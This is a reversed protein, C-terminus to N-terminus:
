VSDESFWDDYYLDDWDDMGDRERSPGDGVGGGGEARESAGKAADESVIDSPSIGLMDSVRELQGAELAAQMERAVIEDEKESGELCEVIAYNVDEQTPEADFTAAVEFDADTDPSTDVFVHWPKPYARIVMARTVGQHVGIEHAHTMAAELAADEEDGGDSGKEEAMTGGSEVSNLAAVESLEEDNNVTGDAGKPPDVGGVESGEKSIGDAVYEPMSDGTMYQVSLLRLHYVSTFKGFEAMDIPVMHHNLVVVPQTIRRDPEVYDRATRRMLKEMAIVAAADDPGPAVVVILNDREDDVPDFGLTSLSVVEPAALAMSRRYSLLGGVTPFVIKVRNRVRFSGEDDGTGTGSDLGELGAAVPLVALEIFEAFLEPDRALEADRVDVLMRHKGALIASLVSAGAADAADTVTRPAAGFISDDDRVSPLGGGGPASADSKRNPAAAAVDAAVSEDTEDIKLGAERLIDVVNSFAKAAETLDEVERRLKRLEFQQKSVITELQVVRKQIDDDGGDVIAGDGAADEADDGAGDETPLPPIVPRVVESKFGKLSNNGDSTKISSKETRLAKAGYNSKTKAGGKTNSKKTRSKRKAFDKKNGDKRNSRRKPRKTGKNISRDNAADAGSSAPPSAGKAVSKNAKPKNYRGSSETGDNNPKKKGDDNKGVSDSSEPNQSMCLPSTRLRSM